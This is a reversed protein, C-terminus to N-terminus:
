FLNVNLLYKSSNVKTMNIEEKQFLESINNLGKTIWINM